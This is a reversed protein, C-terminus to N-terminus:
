TTDKKGAPFARPPARHRDFHRSSPADGRDSVEESTEGLETTSGRKTDASHLEEVDNGLV